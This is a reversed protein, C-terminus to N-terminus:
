HTSAPIWNTEHLQVHTTPDGDFGVMMTDNASYYIFLKSADLKHIKCHEKLQNISDANLKITNLNILKKM